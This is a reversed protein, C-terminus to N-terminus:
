EATPRGEQRQAWRRQWLSILISRWCKSRWMITRAHSAYSSCRELVTDGTTATGVTIESKM